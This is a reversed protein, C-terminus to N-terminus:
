SVNTLVLGLPCPLKTSVESANQKSKNIGTQQNDSSPQRKVMCVFVSGTKARAIIPSASIVKGTNHCISYVYDIM